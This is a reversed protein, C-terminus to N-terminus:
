HPMEPETPADQDELRFTLPEDQASPQAVTASCGQGKAKLLMYKRGDSCFLLVPAGDDWVFRLDIMSKLQGMSVLPRTVSKAFIMNSLLARVQDGSAVRLHIRKAKETDEESLWTLPLLM